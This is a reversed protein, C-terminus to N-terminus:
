RKEVEMVVGRIAVGGGLFVKEYFVSERRERRLEAM